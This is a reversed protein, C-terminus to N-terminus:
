NTMKFRVLRLPMGKYNKLQAIAYVYGNSIIFTNESFNLDYDDCIFSTKVITKGGNDYAIVNFVNSEKKESNTFEFVLFNGEDDIIINSFFPLRPYYNKIDKYMDVKGFTRQIGDITQKKRDEPMSTSIKIQDLTYQLNNKLKEYSELVDKETIELPIIGLKFSSTEKGEKAFIKVDGTGRNSVIFRGDKLFTFVPQKFFMYGPMFIKNEPTPLPVSQLSDKNTTNLYKFAGNEFIEYIINEKGSYFNLNVVIHRWNYVLYRTGPEQEKFMVKGELLIEGNVLPQFPGTMYALKHSKFYKGDLDFLNLRANVDSTLLYKSDVISQVTPLMAFQGPYGGKSGFKKIFNGDQGFKWIEYRNKHSMFVSGDPALIIKKNQEREGLSINLTDYYKNFLSEWNNNAGYSKDPVLKVPGKKYIDLLKQGPSMSIFLGSILIILFSKKM